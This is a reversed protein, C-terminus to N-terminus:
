ASLKTVSFNQKPVSYTGMSIKDIFVDGQIGESGSQFSTTAVTTSNAATSSTSHNYLPVNSPCGSCGTGGVWLDAASTDLVVNFSQPSRAKPLDNSDNTIDIEQSIARRQPDRILGDSSGYRARTPTAAALVRDRWQKADQRSLYDSLTGGVMLERVVLNQINTADKYYVALIEVIYPHNLTAALNVKALVRVAVARPDAFRGNADAGRDLNKVRSYDYDVPTDRFVSSTSNM